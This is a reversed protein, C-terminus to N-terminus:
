RVRGAKSYFAHRPRGVRVQARTTTSPLLRTHDGDPTAIFIGRWKKKNQAKGGIAWSTAHMGQTTRRTAGVCASKSAYWRHMPSLKARMKTAMTPGRVELPGLLKDGCTRKNPKICVCLVTDPDEVLVVASSNPSGRWRWRCPVAPRSHTTTTDFAIAVGNATPTRRAGYGHHKRQRRMTDSMPSIHAHPTPARIPSEKDEAAKSQQTHKHAKERDKEDTAHSTSPAICVFRPLRRCGHRHESM